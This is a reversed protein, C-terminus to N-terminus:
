DDDKHAAAWGLIWAIIAIGFIQLIVFVRDANSYVISYGAIRLLNTVVVNGVMLLLFVYGVINVKIKKLPNKM